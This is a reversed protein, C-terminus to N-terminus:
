MFPAELLGSSSNGIVVDALRMLSLYRQQGLSPILRVREPNQAAFEEIASAVKHGFIDANTGTIIITAESFAALAKTLAKVLGAPDRTLTVPHYTVVFVPPKLKLSVQRELNARSAAKLDAINDLGFAGVTFVKDPAEAM